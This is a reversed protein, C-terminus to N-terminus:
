IHILSLDFTRGTIVLDDTIEYEGNVLSQSLGNLSSAFVIRDGTASGAAADGFAQNTNSAIIAERLSVLGDSAGSADDVATNVVFTALLDRRELQNFDLRKNKLGRRSQIAAKKQRRNSLASSVVLSVKKFIM